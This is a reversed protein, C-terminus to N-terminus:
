SGTGARRQAELVYPSDPFETIIRRYADRAKAQDGQAEWAHALLSLLSDGPLAPEAKQLEANLETAVQTAEGNEIRLQYLSYRAAGVLMHQPHDEIFDNLKQRATATDGRSAALRGVYLGAIDAADTSGYQAQVEKFMKEAAANREADTKFKAEPPATGTAPILPSEITTIASALLEQGKREQNSRYFFIGYVVFAVLILAGAVTLLLRQNARARSSLAGVEDVFRDHRLDHRHQRDM